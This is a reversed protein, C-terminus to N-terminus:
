NVPVVLLRANGSVFVAADDPTSALQVSQGAAVNPSDPLAVTKAVPYLAGAQLAGNLDYVELRPGASGDDRYVFARTADRSALAGGGFAVHGTLSLSRSYVDAGQLIVRSADGSVSVAFLNARPTGTVATDNLANFIFVEPEPSLGNSGMYVRSGDASAAAIGNYLFTSRTLAQTRLDYLYSDSFGSCAGLKFVVFVTGSNAVALQAFFGGCFPDPNAARQVVSPTAAGLDIDGLSNKAAVLLSRGDPALDVDRVDPVVIPSLASWTSASLAYREISQDITNVAYVTAREADYVLRGRTSPAPIAQYALAPPSLVVLEAVGLEIGLQNDFRVPYRGAPLAPVNAQIQTDTDITKALKAAGLRLTPAALTCAFGSGRVYVHGVQNATAVYSTVRDARPLCLDLSVPITLIQGTLEANSWSLVITAQHVANDMAALKAPDVSLTVAASASSTGSPASLQLWDVSVSQLTWIVAWAPSTGGIEDSITIQRILAGPSSGVDVAFPAVAAVVPRPARVTIAVNFSQQRASADDVIDITGPHAGATLGDAVGIVTLTGPGSGATRSLSIWPPAIARWRARDGRINVVYGAAPDPPQLSGGLASFTMPPAGAGFAVFVVSTVVVDAFKVQSGDASRVVFRLTATFTGSTGTDLLRVSYDATAATQGTESVALWPPPASALAVGAGQFTVQVNQAAPLPGSQEADFGVANTSVSISPPPSAPPPPNGTSSATVTWTVQVDASKLQTGDTKGTVFRLTTTRTGLTATDIVQLSIEATTATHGADSVTLWLAQPVTAPYGVIVGDGKYTVHITQAPPPAAGATATFTVSSTSLSIATSDGDGGCGCLIALLAVLAGSMYRTV